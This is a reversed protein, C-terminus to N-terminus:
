TAQLLELITQVMSPFYVIGTGGLVLSPVFVVQFILKCGRFDVHFSFTVWNFLFIMKRGEKKPEVNIKWPTIKMDAHNSYSFWGRM